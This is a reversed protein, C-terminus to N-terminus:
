RGKTSMHAGYEYKYWAVDELVQQWEREADEPTSVTKKSNDWTCAGDAHNLAPCIAGQILAKVFIKGMGVDVPYNSLYALLQKNKMAVMAEAELIDPVFIDVSDLESEQHAELILSYGEALKMRHYLVHRLSMSCVQILTNIVSYFPQQRDLGLVGM